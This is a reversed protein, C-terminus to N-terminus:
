CRASSVLAGFELLVSVLPLLAWGGLIGTTDTGFVVAGLGMETSVTTSIMDTGVNGGITDVAFSFM